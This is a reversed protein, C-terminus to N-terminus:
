IIALTGGADVTLTIGSAVTVPGTASANETALITTNTNLETENVRFIDGPSSGTTGNDGKFYGGGAGAHTDIMEKVGAVSPYKETATGTVNEGSTSKEVVGTATTTAAQKLFAFTTAEDARIPAGAGDYTIIYNQTGHAMEALDVSNASLGAAAVENVAAVISTKDTTTLATLDGQQTHALNLNVRMDNFSATLLTNSIAM